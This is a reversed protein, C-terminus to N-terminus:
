GATALRRRISLPDGLAPRGGAVRPECQCSLQATAPGGASGHGCLPEPLDGCRPSRAMGLSLGLALDSRALGCSLYRDLPPADPLSGPYANLGNQTGCISVVPFLDIEPFRSPALSNCINRFGM